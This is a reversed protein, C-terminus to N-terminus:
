QASFSGKIKEYRSNTMGKIQKLEEVEGFSGQEKRYEIIRQALKEKIGPVAMLLEKDASNLNIKAIDEFICAQSPMIRIFLRIGAGIFAMTILFLIVQREQRTLDFM